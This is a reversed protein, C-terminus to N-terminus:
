AHLMKNLAALQLKPDQCIKTLHSNQTISSTWLTIPITCSNPKKVHSTGLQVTLQIEQPQQIAPQKITQFQLITTKVMATKVQARMQKKPQWKFQMTHSQQLIIKQNQWIWPRTQKNYYNGHSVTAQNPKHWIVAKPKKDKWTTAKPHNRGM